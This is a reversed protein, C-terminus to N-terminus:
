TFEEPSRGPVCNLAQQFAKGSRILLKHFVKRLHCEVTRPRM